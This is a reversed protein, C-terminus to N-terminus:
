SLGLCHQFASVNSQQCLDTYDLSYTCNHSSSRLSPLTGLFQFAKSTYYQLLTRLTGQIALLDFWDIKLSILGSHETPLASASASVSINQGDSAFLWSLFIGQHQSLNLSSPSSPMLPHSLEIADRICHVHVQAFKPLHHPLTFSPTSCDMPDHLTLCSHTVFLLKLIQPFYVFCLSHFLPNYTAYRLALHSWM